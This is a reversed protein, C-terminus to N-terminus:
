LWRRRWLARCRSLDLPGASDLRYYSVQGRRVSTTEVGLLRSWRGRRRKLKARSWGLRPLAEAVSPQHRDVIRVFRLLDLASVGEHYSM